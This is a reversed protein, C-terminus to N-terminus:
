GKTLSLIGFKVCHIGHELITVSKM